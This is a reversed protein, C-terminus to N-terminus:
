ISIKVYHDNYHNGFKKIISALSQIEKNVLLSSHEKHQATQVCFHFIKEVKTEYDTHVQIWEVVNENFWLLAVVTEDDELLIFDDKGNNIMNSNIKNLIEINESPFLQKILEFDYEPDCRYFFM